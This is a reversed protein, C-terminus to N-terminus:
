YRALGPTSSLNTQDPHVRAYQDNGGAPPYPRTHINIGRCPAKRDNVSLLPNGGFASGGITSVVSFVPATSRTQYQRPHHRDCPASSGFQTARCLPYNRLGPLNRVFVILRFIPPPPLELCIFKLRPLLPAIRRSRRRRRVYYAEWM